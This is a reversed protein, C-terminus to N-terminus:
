GALGEVVVTAGALGCLGLVCPRLWGRDLFGHLARSAFLGALVAPVMALGLQWHLARVEGAVLLASFSFGTGVLFAAGLTSRVVPGPSHQYLLALPPGGISSSTGMVGGLWGAGAQTLPTIPIRPSSVSMLVAFLVMGGTATALAEADLRIVIWLGVAIGPVRGVTTWLIASRDIHSFERAASGLTMPLALIIASAPLAEPRYVAIVPAVILNLGFGISGQVLAGFFATALLVFFATAELGLSDLLSEM